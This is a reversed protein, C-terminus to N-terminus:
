KFKVGLQKLKQIANYVAVAKVNKTVHVAPAGMHPIGYWSGGTNIDHPVLMVKGTIDEHWVYGKESRFNNIVDSTIQGSEFEKLAKPIMDPNNALKQAYLEDFLDMKKGNGFIKADLSDVFANSNLMKESMDIVGNTIKVSVTPDSRKVIYGNGGNKLLEERTMGPGSPDFGDISSVMKWTKNKPGPYRNNKVIDDVLARNEKIAKLARKYERINKYGAEKAIKGLKVTNYVTGVVAYVVAAAAAAYNFAKYLNQYLSDSMHLVDTFFNFELTADVFENFGFVIQLAGLIFFIASFAKTWGPASSLVKTGIVITGVGGGISVVGGIGQAGRDTFTNVLFESIEDQFYHMVMGAIGGALLWIGAALTAGATFAAAIILVVGVVIMLSNLVVDIINWITASNDTTIEPIELVSIQGTTGDVYYFTSNTVQSEVFAIQESSIGLFTEDQGHLVYENIAAVDVVTITISDVTTGNADQNDTISKYTEILKDYDVGSALAYGCKEFEAGLDLDYVVENKDYDYLYGLDTFYSDPNNESSLYTIRYGDVTYSVYQEFAIYHDAWADEKLKLEFLYEADDYDVESEEVYEFINSSAYDTASFAPENAYSIFGAKYYEIDDREDIYTWDTFGVGRVKEGNQKIVVAEFTDYGLTNLDLAVVSYLFTEEANFEDDDSVLTTNNSISSEYSQRITEAYANLRIAISTSGLLNDIAFVSMVVAMMLSVATLIATRLKVPKRSHQIKVRRAGQKISGSANQLAECCVVNEATVRHSASVNASVTKLEKSDKLKLIIGIIALILIGAFTSFISGNQVSSYVMGGIMNMFTPSDTLSGAIAASYGDDAIYLAYLTIESDSEFDAVGDTFILSNVGRDATGWGYFSYGNKNVVNLEQGKTVTIASSKDLYVADLRLESVNPVSNLQGICFRDQGNLGYKYGYFELGVRSLENQLVLTEFPKTQYSGILVGDYVSVVTENYRYLATLTTDETFGINFTGNYIKGNSTEWGIFEFKPDTYLQEPLTFREGNSVFQKKVTDKDILTLEYIQSPTYINVYFKVINGLRDILAVTWEGSTEIKINEIEALQYIREEGATNSIKVIGYPDLENNASEILFSNATFVVNAFEQNLKQSVSVSNYVRTTEISTTNNGTKIYNGYYVTEGCSNKEVIKYKGSPANKGVLYGEVDAGYPIFGYSTNTADYILEVSASEYKAAQIFEVPNVAHKSEGDADLYYYNRDNLFPIGAANNYGNTSHEFVFVDKTVKDSTLVTAPDGGYVLYSSLDSYDFYNVSVLEESKAYANVAKQVSALDAYYEGRFSYGVGSVTVLSRAYEYATNYASALDYYVFTVTKGTTSNPIKVGYFRSEYDSISLNSDLMLKNVSPLSNDDTVSFRFIFRYVDGSAQVSDDFYRSNNAFEALYYGSETLLNGSTCVRDGNKSAVIKYIDYGDITGIMKRGDDLTVSGDISGIYVKGNIIKPEDYAKFGDGAVPVYDSEVNVRYFAFGDNPKVEYSSDVEIRTPQKFYTSNFSQMAVANELSGYKNAFEYTSLTEAYIGIRGCIPMHNNDVENTHWTVEGAKYVPIESTQSFLRSSSEEILNGSFYYNLNQGLGRDNIYITAQKSKGVKPTITFDYRGPEMFVRGDYVPDHVVDNLGSGNKSYRIEYNNGNLNIKFGDNVADGDKVGGFNRVLESASDNTEVEANEDGSSFNMNQFIIEARSNSIYFTTEEVVNIYHWVKTESIFGDWFKDWWEVKYDYRSLQYAFLVKIYIGQKLDEGSPQYIPLYGDIPFYKEEYAYNDENKVYEYGSKQGYENYTYIINGNEDRKIVPGVQFGTGAQGNYLSPSYNNVFDSSHFSTSAGSTFPNGWSYDKGDKSKSVLLVGSGVTGAGSIGNITGSYNSYDISWDSGNIKETEAFNYKLLVQINPTSSGDFQDDAIYGYSNGDKLLEGGNYRLSYSVYNNGLPHALDSNAETIDYDCNGYDNTSENFVYTNSKLSQTSTTLPVKPEKDIATFYIKADKFQWNAFTWTYGGNQKLGLRCKSNNAFNPVDLTAAYYYNQWETNELDIDTRKWVSTSGLQLDVERGAGKDEARMNIDLNVQIHTYRLEVLKDIDLNISQSTTYKYGSYSNISIVENDIHITGSSLKVWAAYLTRPTDVTFSVDDCMDGYEDFYKIGGANQGSFFGYFAYGEKEPVNVSIKNNSKVELEESTFTKDGVTREGGQYDLVITYDLSEFKASEDTDTSTTGAYAIAVDREITPLNLEVISILIAFSLVLAVLSIIRKVLSKKFKHM